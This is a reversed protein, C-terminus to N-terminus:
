VNNKQSLIEKILPFLLGYEARSGTVVCIKKKKKQLRLLGSHTMGYSSPTAAQTKKTKSKKDAKKEDNEKKDSAKEDESEPKKDDM